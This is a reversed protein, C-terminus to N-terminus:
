PKDADSPSGDIGLRKRVLAELMAITASAGLWGCVGVIVGTWGEPVNMAQCALYVLIGVFGAGLGEAAAVGWRIPENRNITRLIHGLFGGFAAFTAYATVKVYWVSFPDPM